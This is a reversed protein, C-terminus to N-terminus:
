TLFPPARDSNKFKFLHPIDTELDAFLRDQFVQISEFVCIGSEFFEPLTLLIAICYTHPLDVAALGKNSQVAYNYNHEHFAAHILQGTGSALFFVALLFAALFKKIFKNM